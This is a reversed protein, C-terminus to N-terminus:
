LLPTLNQIFLRNVAITIPTAKQTINKGRHIGGARAPSASHSVNDSICSCSGHKLTNTNSPQTQTGSM